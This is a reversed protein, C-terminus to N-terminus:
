LLMSAPRNLLLLFLINSNIYLLVKKLNVTGKITVEQKHHVMLLEAADTEQDKIKFPVGCHCHCWWTLSTVGVDQAFPAKSRSIILSRHISPNDSSFSSGFCVCVALLRVCASCLFVLLLSSVFTFTNHSVYVPWFSAPPVYVCSTQVYSCFLLVSFRGTRVSLPRHRTPHYKSSSARGGPSHLNFCLVPILLTEGNGHRRPLFYPCWRLSLIFLRHLESKDGFHKLTM